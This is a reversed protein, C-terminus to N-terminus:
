LVHVGMLHGSASDQWFAYNVEMSKEELYSMVLHEAM